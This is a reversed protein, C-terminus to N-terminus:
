KGTAKNTLGASAFALTRGEKWIQAMIVREGGTEAPSMFTIHGDVSVGPLGRRLGHLTGTENAHQREVKMKCIVKEPAASALTVKELVGHSGPSRFRVELTERANQMLCSM